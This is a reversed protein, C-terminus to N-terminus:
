HASEKFRQKDIELKTSVWRREQCRLERKKDHLKDTFWPANPCCKVTRTIEPAHKDKLDHLVQDYEGILSELDYNPSTYLSSTLIDNRFADIDINSLKRTTITMGTPKPRVSNLSCM